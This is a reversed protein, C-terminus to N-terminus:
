GNVVFPISVIMPMEASAIMMIRPSTRTKTALLAYLHFRRSLLGGAKSREELKVQLLSNDHCRDDTNGDKGCNHDETHQPGEDCATVSVRGGATAWRGCSELSM